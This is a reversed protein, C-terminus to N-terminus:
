QVAELPNAKIDVGADEDTEIGIEAMFDKPKGPMFETIPDLIDKCMQKRKKWHKRNEEFSKEIRKKDAESMINDGSRLTALRTEFQENEKTLQDIREKIQDTTLASNLGGLTSSLQRQQEKHDAIESKLREIEQDMETLEEASPAEQDDQKAVFVSQKGYTKGHIEGREQLQVLIKQINPKTLAGHLNNCIDTASYPRNMKNLYDLVLQDGDATKAKKSPPAM